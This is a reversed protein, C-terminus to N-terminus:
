EVGYALGGIEGGDRARVRLSMKWNGGGNVLKVLMPNRGAQLTIDAKDQGYGHPRGVDHAHVVKGNLYVTISDDSGIELRADKAADSTIVTRLVLARNGGFFDALDLDVIGQDSLLGGPVISWTSKDPDAEAPAKDRFLRGM